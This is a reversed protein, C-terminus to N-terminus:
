YWGYTQADKILNMVKTVYDEDTAYDGAKILQLAELVTNANVTGKRTGFDDNWQIKYQRIMEELNEFKKFDAKESVLGEGYDETTDKLESEGKAIESPTAKLGLFNNESSRNDGYTSEHMAQAAVLEPFKIGMEKALNYIVKFNHERRVPAYPHDAETILKTPDLDNIYNIQNLDTISEPILLVDGVDIQNPNTIGNAKMIAEITTEYTIAIESLTDGSEIDHSTFGGETMFAPELNNKNIILNKLDENADTNENNQNENNQNINLKELLKKGENTMTTDITVVISGEPIESTLVRSFTKTEENYILATSLNTTTEQNSNTTDEQDSNTTDEQNKYYDSDFNNAENYYEYNNNSIERVEEKFWNEIEETIGGEALIQKKLEETLDFLMDERNGLVQVQQLIGVRDGLKNEAFKILSQLRPNDKLIGFGTGNDIDRLLDKYTELDEKTRTSGLLKMFNNLDNKATIADGEYYGSQWRLGFNFFWEDVNFNRLINQEEIFELQDPFQIQLAELKDIQSQFDESSFDISNLVREIEKKNENEILTSEEDHKKNIEEKIDLILQDMEKGYFNNLLQQVKQGDALETIPGAKVKGIFEIFLEIEELAELPSFGEAEYDELIQYASNKIVEMLKAPTVSERLGNEVLTNLGTQISDLAITEAQSLDETAIFNDDIINLEIQNNLNDINYWNALVSDSFADTALNIKFEARDNEHTAFVQALATNQKPFFYQNLIEPRIGKTDLLQTENFEKIANQYAESNIDFQSLPIGDVTYDKFFAVTRAEAVNGLNIALQKEIGFQTYINGGIFNRAFPKGEKAELEKKIENLEVPDAGLLLNQGALIGEQKGEQIKFDVFKQLTPNINSLTAALEMLATKPQTTVPEVFTEVPTRFSEGATDQFNTTNVKLVM